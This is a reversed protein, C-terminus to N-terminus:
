LTEPYGFKEAPLAVDNAKEVPIDHTIEDFYNEFSSFESILLEMIQHDLIKEMIDSVFFSTGNTAIIQLLTTLAIKELVKEMIFNVFESKKKTETLKIIPLPGKKRKQKLKFKVIDNKNKNLVEKSIEKIVETLNDLISEQILDEMVGELAVEDISQLVLETEILVERLLEDYFSECANTLLHADVIDRVVNQMVDKISEEVCESFIEEAIDEIPDPPPKCNLHEAAFDSLFERTSQLICESLTEEIIHYWMRLGRFSTTNSFPYYMEEAIEVLVEPLFEDRALELICLELIFYDPKNLKVIENVRLDPIKRRCLKGRIFRQVCIVAKTLKERKEYEKELRDLYLKNEKEKIKLELTQIDKLRKEHRKLLLERKKLMIQESEKRDLDIIKKSIESIDNNKQQVLFPPNIAPLSYLPYQPQLYQPFYGQGLPNYSQSLNKPDTQSPFPYNSNPNANPECNSSNKLSSNENSDEQKEKNLENVTEELNSFNEQFLDPSERILFNKEWEEIFDTTM